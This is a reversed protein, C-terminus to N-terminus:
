DFAIDFIVVNSNRVVGSNFYLIQVAGAVPAITEAGACASRNSYLDAVRVWM